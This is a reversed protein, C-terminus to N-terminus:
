AEGLFKISRLLDLRTKEGKRGSNEQFNGGGRAGEKYGQNFLAGEREAQHGSWDEREETTGVVLFGKKNYRPKV